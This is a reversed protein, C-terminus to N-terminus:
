LQISSLELCDLLEKCKEPHKILSPYLAWCQLVLRLDLNDIGELATKEENFVAGDLLHDLMAIEAQELAPSPSLIASEQEAEKKLLMLYITVLTQERVKKLHFNLNILNLRKLENLFLEDSKKLLEAAKQPSSLFDHIQKSIDSNKDFRVNFVNFFVKYAETNYKFVGLAELITQKM